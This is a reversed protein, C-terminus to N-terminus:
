NKMVAYSISNGSEYGNWHGNSIVGNTFKLFLLFGSLAFIIVVLTTLRTLFISQLERFFMPSLSNSYAGEINEAKSRQSVLFM